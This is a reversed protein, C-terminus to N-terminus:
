SGDTIQKLVHGAGKVAAAGTDTGAKNMFGGILMMM